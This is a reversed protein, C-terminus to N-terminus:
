LIWEPLKCLMWVYGVVYASGLAIKLWDKM